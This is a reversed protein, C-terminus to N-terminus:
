TSKRKQFDQSLMMQKNQYGSIERNTQFFNNKQMKQNVKLCSSNTTNHKLKNQMSQKFNLNSTKNFSDIFDNALNCNKKKILSAIDNSNEYFNNNDFNSTLMLKDLTKSNNQKEGKNNETSLYSNNILNLDHEGINISNENKVFESNSRYNARKKNSDTTIYEKENQCNQITQNKLETTPYSSVLTNSEQNKILNNSERKLPHDFCDPKEVPDLYVTYNSQVNNELTVIQEGEIVFSNNESIVISTKHSKSANEKINNIEIDKDDSLAKEKESIRLREKEECQQIVEEGVNSLCYVAPKIGQFIFNNRFLPPSLILSCPTKDKGFGEITLFTNKNFYYYETRREEYDKINLKILPDHLLMYISLRFLCNIFFKFYNSNIDQKIDDLRSCDKYNNICRSVENRVELFFEDTFTFIAQFYDQFLSRFRNLFNEPVIDKLNLVELVLRIKNQILVNTRNYTIAFTDQVAHSLWVHDDYINEFSEM